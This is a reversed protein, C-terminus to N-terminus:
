HRRVYLTLPWGSWAHVLEGHGSNQRIQVCVLHQATLQCEPESREAIAIEIHTKRMPTFTPAHSTKIQGIM